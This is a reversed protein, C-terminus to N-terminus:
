DFEENEVEFKLKRKSKILSERKKMSPKIYEQRNKFELLIGSEKVMRKFNKLAIELDEKASGPVRVGIGIGSLKCSKGKKKKVDNFNEKM